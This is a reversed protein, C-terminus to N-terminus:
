RTEVCLRRFAAPFDAGVRRRLLAQKLVCGGLPPQGGYKLIWEKERTEVCLRRFAAPLGDSAAPVSSLTEVCLRRFAAPIQPHSLHQFCGTEVCLRRFAAPAAAM